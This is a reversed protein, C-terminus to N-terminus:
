IDLWGQRWLFYLKFVLQVSADDELEGDLAMRAAEILPVNLVTVGERPRSVEDWDKTWFLRIPTRITAHGMVKGLSILGKAVIRIGTDHQIKGAMPQGPRDFGGPTKVIVPDTALRQKRYLVITPQAGPDLGKSLLGVTFAPPTEVFAWIESLGDIATREEVALNMYPTEVSLPLDVPQGNLLVADNPVM